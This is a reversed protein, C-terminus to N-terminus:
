RTRWPRPWCGTALMRRAGERVLTELTEAIAPQGSDIAAAGPIRRM